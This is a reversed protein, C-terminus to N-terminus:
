PDLLEDSQYYVNYVKYYLGEGPVSAAKISEVGNPYHGTIQAFSPASALAASILVGCSIQRM